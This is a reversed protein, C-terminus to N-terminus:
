LHIIAMCLDLVLEIECLFNLPTWWINGRTCYFCEVVFM